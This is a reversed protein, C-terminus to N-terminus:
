ISGYWDLTNIELKTMVVNYVLTIAAHSLMLLHYYNSNNCFTSDFYKYMHTHACTHM